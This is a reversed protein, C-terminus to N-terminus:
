FARTAWEEQKGARYRFAPVLLRLITRTWESRKVPFQAGILIPNESRTRSVFVSQDRQCLSNKIVRAIITYLITTPTYGPGVFTEM